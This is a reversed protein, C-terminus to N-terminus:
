LGKGKVSNVRLLIRLKDQTFRLLKLEKVENLVRQAGESHCFTFPEPNLTVTLRVGKDQSAM